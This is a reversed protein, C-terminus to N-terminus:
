QAAELMYDVAARVEDDSLSTNGGRAPMMGAEGQFGNIAHDYLTDMGKAIRDGWAAPDDTRPAGAIGAGHCALCAQQYVAEGSRPEAAEDSPATTPSGDGSDAVAVEGPDGITLTGVPAVREAIVNELEAHRQAALKGAVEGSNIHALVVLFLTLLLLLGIMLFFSKSFSKDSMQSESMDQLEQISRLAFGRVVPSGKATKPDRAPV